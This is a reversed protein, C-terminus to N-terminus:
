HESTLSQAGHFVFVRLNSNKCTTTTTRHYKPHPCSRVSSWIWWVNQETKADSTKIRNEIKHVNLTFMNLFVMAQNIKFSHMINPDFSLCLYSIMSIKSILIFCWSIWSIKFVMSHLTWPRWYHKGAYQTGTHYYNCNSNRGKVQKM